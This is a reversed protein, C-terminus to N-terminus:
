KRQLDLIKCYVSSSSCVVSSKNDIVSSLMEVTRRSSKLTRLNVSSLFSVFHFIILFTSM